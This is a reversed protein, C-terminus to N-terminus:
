KNKKNFLSKLWGLLMVFPIILLKWAGALFALIVAFFGKKSAVAAAGGLILAALGYEAIKDGEKFETYREGQNYEFGNLKEKFDAIASNM